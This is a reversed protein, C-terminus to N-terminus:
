ATLIPTDNPVVEQGEQSPWSTQAVQRTSPSWAADRSVTAPCRRIRVPKGRRRRRRGKRASPGTARGVILLAHFTGYLMYVCAVPSQEEPCSALANSDTM